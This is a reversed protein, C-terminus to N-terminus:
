EKKKLKSGRYNETLTHCNPCLLQLNELQNNDSNGDIHHLELPVPKSLWESLGCNMCQHPFIKRRLLHGKLKFSQISRKNTIYDEFPIKDPFKKGKNWLSGTFHSTDLQLKKIRKNVTSYNGGSPILGLKDLVQRITFSTKVAISLDEESYRYKTM